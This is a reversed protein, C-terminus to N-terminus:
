LGEHLKASQAPRRTIPQAPSRALAAERREDAKRALRMLAIQKRLKREERREEMALAHDEPSEYKSLWGRM